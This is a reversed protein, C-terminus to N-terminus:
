SGHGRVRCWWAFCVTFLIQTVLFTYGPVETVSLLKFSLFLALAITFQVFATEVVLEAYTKKSTV